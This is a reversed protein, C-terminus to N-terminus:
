VGGCRHFEGAVAVPAPVARRGPGARQRGLLQLVDDGAGEVLAAQARRRGRVLGVQLDAGRHAAFGTQALDVVVVAGVIPATAVAAIVAHPAARRQDPGVAFGYQHHIELEEVWPARGHDPTVLRFGAAVALA